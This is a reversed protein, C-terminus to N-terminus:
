SARRTRTARHRWRRVRVMELAVEVAKKSAGAERPADARGAALRGAALRSRDVLVPSQDPSCCIRPRHQLTVLTHRGLEEGLETLKLATGQHWVQM